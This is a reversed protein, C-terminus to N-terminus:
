MAMGGDVSIVQGTIYRSADSSLFLVAEAVDEPTGLQQLPIQNMLAERAEDGLEETMRTKIYGPAVANARVGRKAMERAASKTVGLVGAKSASYNVQGPNGLLGVVSSINVISGSKQRMMPRAVAKVGNFVGTLNVAIVQDWDQQDMRILLNDRTIGANNVMVDLSGFTDVVQRAAEEMQDFETVDAEIAMFERDNEEVLAQTEHLPGADVDLGAVNAGAVALRRSIAQGIGRSAGTVLATKGDLM